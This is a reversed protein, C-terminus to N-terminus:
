RRGISESILLVGVQSMPLLHIFNLYLSRSLHICLLNCLLNHVLFLKRDDISVIPCIRSKNFALTYPNMFM